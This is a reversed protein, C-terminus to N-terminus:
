EGRTSALTGRELEALFEEMSFNTQVAEELARPDIRPDFGTIREICRCYEEERVADTCYEDQLKFLEQTLRAREAELHEIQERIKARADFIARLKTDIAPVLSPSGAAPGNRNESQTM